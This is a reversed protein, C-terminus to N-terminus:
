RRSPLRHAHRIAEHRSAAQLKELINHVHNKVTHLSVFLRKAIEKNSQHQSILDLIEQERVTLKASAAQEHWLPEHHQLALGRFLADLIQPSCFAGNRVVDDIASRLEELTSEELVCGHVGAAICPFLDEHSHSSVLLLVKTPVKWERLHQLTKVTLGEPLSQDVLVVHAPNEQLSELWGPHRHDVGSVDFRDEDALVRVLSERFLRNSHLVKLHTVQTVLLSRHDVRSSVGSAGDM